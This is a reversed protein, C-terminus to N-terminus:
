KVYVNGTFSFVFQHGDFDVTIPSTLESGVGLHEDSVPSNADQNAYWWAQKTVSVLVGQPSDPANAIAARQEKSFSAPVAMQTPPAYEAKWGGPSLFQWLSIQADRWSAFSPWSSRDLGRSPLEIDISCSVADVNEPAVGKCGMPPHERFDQLTAASNAPRKWTLACQTDQCVVSEIRWGRAYVPLAKIRERVTAIAGGIPHVKRKMWQEVSQAYLVTPAGAARAQLAALERSHQASIELGYWGAAGVTVLGLLGVLLKPTRSSRLATIRIARGGKRSPTLNALAFPTEVQTSEHVDGWSHFKRDSSRLHDRLFDSRVSGVQDPAVVRDLVVLGERLGVCVVSLHDGERIEFFVMGTADRLEPHTALVAAGALMGKYSTAKEDHSGNAPVLGYVRGGPLNYRASERLGKARWARIAQHESGSLADHQEWQLGFALVLDKSLRLIKM